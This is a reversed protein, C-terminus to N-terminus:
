PLCAIGIPDMPVRIVKSLHVLIYVVFRVVHYINLLQNSQDINLWCDLINCFKHLTSSTTQTQIGTNVRLNGCLM